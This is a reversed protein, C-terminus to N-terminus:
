RGLECARPAAAAHYPFELATIVLPVFSSRGSMLFGNRKDPQRKEAVRPPHELEIQSSQYMGANTLDLQRTTSRQRLLSADGMM